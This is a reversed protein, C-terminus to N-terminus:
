SKDVNFEGDRFVDYNGPLPGDLSPERIMLFFVGM